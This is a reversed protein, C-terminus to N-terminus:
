AALAQNWKIKIADADFGPGRRAPREIVVADLLKRVVLRRRPLSLAEWVQDAPDGHRFADLDDPEAAATALQATIAADDAAIQAAIAGITAEDDLVGSAVMRGLKARRDALQNRQHTLGDVDVEPRAPPLLIDAVDPKGLRGLVLATIHDDVAAADRRVHGCVKGVYAPGRGKGAGGVSLPKGCIGCTAFLSVLWRPENATTTRRAPDTLKRRLPEWVEARDLIAPWPAAVLESDPHHRGHTRDTCRWMLGAVAPKLVMDRVASTSWETGRDATVTPVRHERLWRTVAAVSVNRLLDKAVRRIAKAEAEDVALNRAHEETGQVVRYGFPRRGGQYSRGAWRRRGTRVNAAVGDSYRRADTIRDRFARVQSDTGGSTLLWKATGDEDPAVVSASAVRVADILDLGDRENRTIRSDDGVILVLPTPNAQMELVVGEFVPRRTRFTILGTATRVQRPTKYASAGRPRGNANLDNEIAVRRVTLGLDAALDRLERERMEFTTDDTNRFDSLRLYIIAEKAPTTALYSALTM